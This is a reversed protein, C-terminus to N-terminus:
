CLHYPVSRDTGYPKILLSYDLRHPNKQYVEEDSELEAGRSIIRRTPDLSSTEASTVVAYTASNNDGARVLAGLPPPDFLRDCQGVMQEISAAIVEGFRLARGGKNM